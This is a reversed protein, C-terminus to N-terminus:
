LLDSRPVVKVCIILVVSLSDIRALLLHLHVQLLLSLRLLPSPLLCGVLLRVFVLMLM